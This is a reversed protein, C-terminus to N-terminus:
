AGAEILQGMGRFISGCIFVSKNQFSFSFRNDPASELHQIFESMSQQLLRIFIRKDNLETQPGDLVFLLAMIIYNVLRDSHSFVHGVEDREPADHDIGLDNLADSIVFQALHEVVELDCTVLDSDDEIETVGAEFPFPNDVRVASSRVDSLFIETQDWGREDADM